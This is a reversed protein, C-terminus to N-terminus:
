ENEVIELYKKLVSIIDVLGQRDAQFNQFFIHFSVDTEIQQLKAAIQDDLETSLQLQFLEDDNMKYYKKRNVIFSESSKEISTRHQNHVSIKIRDTVNFCNIYVVSNDHNMTVELKFDRTRYLKLKYGNDILIRNKPIKIKHIAAIKSIIQAAELKLLDIM